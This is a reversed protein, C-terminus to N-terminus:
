PVPPARSERLLQVKFAILALSYLVLAVRPVAYWAREATVFAFGTTPVMMLGELLALGARQWRMLLHELPDVAVFTLTLSVGVYALVDRPFFLMPVIWTSGLFRRVDATTDRGLLRADLWLNLAVYGLAYAHFGRGFTGVPSLNPEFRQETARMLLHPGYALTERWFVACVVALVFLAVMPWRRGHVRWLFPAVLLPYIKTLAALAWAAAALSAPRAVLALALLLFVLADINGREILMQAPFGAFLFAVTLLVGPGRHGAARAAVVGGAGLMIVSALCWLDRATDFSFPALLLNPMLSAPPTVFRAVEYPNGGSLYVHAADYFEKFDLGLFFRVVLQIDSQMLLSTYCLGVYSLGLIAIRWHIRRVSSSSMEEASSASPAGSM